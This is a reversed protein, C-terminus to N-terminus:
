QYHDLFERQRYHFKLKSNSYLCNGNYVLKEIKAFFYIGPFLMSFHTFNCLECFKYVKVTAQPFQQQKRGLHPLLKRVCYMLVYVFNAFKALSYKGCQVVNELKSMKTHEKWSHHNTQMEKGLKLILRHHPNDIGNCNLNFILPVSNTYLDCYPESQGYRVPFSVQLSIQM